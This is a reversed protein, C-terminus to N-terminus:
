RAKGPGGGNMAAGLHIHDSNNDNFAVFNETPWTVYSQWQQTVGGFGIVWAYPNKAIAKFVNVVSEQERGQWNKPYLDVALGGSHAWAGDPTPHDTRAALITIPEGILDEVLTDLMQILWTNTMNADLLDSRQTNDTFSLKTILEQRAKTSM